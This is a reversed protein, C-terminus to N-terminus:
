SRRERYDVVDCRNIYVVEQSVESTNSIQCDWLKGQVDFIQSLLTDEFAMQNIRFRNSHPLPLQTQRLFVGRHESLTEIEGDNLVRRITSHSASTLLPLLLCLCLTKMRKAQILSNHNALALLYPHFIGSTM